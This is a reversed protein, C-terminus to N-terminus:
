GRAKYTVVRYLYILVLAGLIVKSAPGMYVEVKAYNVGLLYGAGALLASWIFTGIATYLLFIGMNMGAIGAPISILSRIGPILRCLLVTMGGYRDFWQKGRDLDHSSVTLWRGHRDAWIKLYDMGFWRGAYYFPIAGLISGVTGAAVVGAFTLEGRTVVFGALPMILESPIPPFVNELFMLFVIGYYGMSEMTGTIWEVM